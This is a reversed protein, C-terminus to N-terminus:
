APLHYPALLAKCPFTWLHCPAQHAQSVPFLSTHGLFLSLLAPTLLWFLLTQLIHLPALAPSTAACVQPGSNLARAGHLIWTFGAGATCM